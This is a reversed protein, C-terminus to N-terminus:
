YPRGGRTIRRRLQSIDRPVSSGVVRGEDETAQRDTRRRVLKIYDNEAPEAKDYQMLAKWARFRAGLKIAEHWEVGLIPSHTGLTLPLPRIRFDLAITRAAKPTPYFVLLDNMRFYVEPDGSAAVLSRYASLDTKDLPYGGNYNESTPLVLAAGIITSVVYPLTYVAQAPVLTLALSGKLEDLELSTCLDTYAENLWLDYRPTLIDARGGLSADLEERLSDLTQGQSILPAGLTTVPAPAASAKDLVSYPM